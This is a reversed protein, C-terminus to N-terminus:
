IAASNCSLLYDVWSNGNGSRALFRIDACHKISNVFVGNIHCTYLLIVYRIFRCQRPDCRADMVCECRRNSLIGSVAIHYQAM